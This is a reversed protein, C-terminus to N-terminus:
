RTFFLKRHVYYNGIGVGVADLYRRWVRVVASCCWQLVMAVVYCCGCGDGVSMYQLVVAVGYCCGCGDGVTVGVGM